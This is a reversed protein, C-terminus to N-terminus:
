FLKRPLFSIVWHVLIQSKDCIYVFAESLLWHQGIWSLDLDVNQGLDEDKVTSQTYTLQHTHMYICMRRLRQPEFIQYTNLAM